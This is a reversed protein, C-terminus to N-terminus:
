DVDNRSLIEAPKKRITMFVPILGVILNFIFVLIVSFIFIYINVTFRSNLFAIQKLVSLVYTMFCIGPISGVVTIALIEGVFMKYIDSKKVGIARFIGVEKIRSMFSSRIMLLIEVLSIGLIIGSAILTAKIGDERSKIYSARSYDYSSKINMVKDKFYKIINDKNNSFISIVDTKSIYKYKITNESVLYYTNIDYDNSDLVEFYGVVKLKKDNVKLNMKKNLPYDYEFMKNVIVEYDNSPYNGKTLKIKDKVLEYNLIVEETYYIPNMNYSGNIITIFLDKNLYINPETIDTVGVITFYDLLHDAYLKKNLLKSYEDIGAAKSRNGDIFRDLALKDVVVERDNNPMRGLILNDKNITNIDSLSVTLYGGMEATQLYDDYEIRLNVVSDTPLVYAINDLSEYSLYDDVKFNNAKVTLYDRNIEIFDKDNIILSADISSLAYFIFMGSLFFGGLLIKKLIPYDLIKRFGYSIFSGLRFISSYRPKHNNSISEIDFLDEKIDDVKIEKYHDDVFDINSNNDVVEIKENTNSDIYINGNKFVLKIDIKENNDRYIDININDKKINKIDKYDKLYIRNEVRYNLGNNHKNEYDNVIRGDSFEIIRDAYFKALEEEHTVLVVLYKSSISKIINMVELSNKSDLNGTPEDALIIKPNKVIARAIGVRQREGGSLMTVLRSKYRLMGVKDLAYLVRKKIEEKDKLGILKLSLAVNDYVTMSEVLKYDQFIYGINLNRIKDVKYSLRKTIKKGDIYISGSSVNLLGGMTNLMTTKGSGSEGLLAVLGSSPLSVTVDNIVHIENKKHRNYYKNVKNFRIM